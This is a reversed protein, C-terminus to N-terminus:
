DQCDETINHRAPAPSINPGRTTCAMTSAKSNLVWPVSSGWLALTPRTARIVTNTNPKAMHAGGAAAATAHHLCLLRSYVAGVYTHLWSLAAMSVQKAQLSNWVALPAPGCRTRCGCGTSLNDLQMGRLRRVHAHRSGRQLIMNVEAMSLLDQPGM